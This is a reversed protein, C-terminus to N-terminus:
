DSVQLGQKIAERVSYASAKDDCWVVVSVGPLTGHANAFEITRQREKLPSIAAFRFPLGFDRIVLRAIREIEIPDM